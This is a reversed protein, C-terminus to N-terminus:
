RSPTRGQQYGFGTYYTESQITGVKCFYPNSLGSRRANCFNLRSQEYAGEANTDSLSTALRWFWWTSNRKYAFVVEHPNGRCSICMVADHGIRYLVSHNATTQNEKKCKDRADLPVMSDVKRRQAIHIFLLVLLLHPPCWPQVYPRGHAPANTKSVRRALLSACNSSHEERRCM